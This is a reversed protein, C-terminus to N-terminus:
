SRPIRSTSARLNRALSALLEAVEPLRADEIEDFARVFWTRTREVAEAGYKTLQVVTRRRDRPHPQRKVLGSREMRDVLSTVSSTTIGLAEALETQGMARSVILNSLAQTETVGMGLHHAVSNRYAESALILERFAALADDHKRSRSM